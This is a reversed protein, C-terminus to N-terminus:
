EFYITCVAGDPNYNTHGGAVITNTVIIQSGASPGSQKQVKWVYAYGGNSICGASNNFYVKKQTNSAITGVQVGDIYLRVVNASNNYFGAYTTFNSIQDGPPPYAVFNTTMDTNWAVPFTYSGYLNHGITGAGCAMISTGKNKKYVHPMVYDSNDVIPKVEERDNCGVVLAILFLILIRKMPSM